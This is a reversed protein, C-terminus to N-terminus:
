LAGASSGLISLPLSKGEGEANVIFFFVANTAFWLYKETLLLTYKVNKNPKHM